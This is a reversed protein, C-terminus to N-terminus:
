ATPPLEDDKDMFKWCRIVQDDSSPVVQQCCETCSIPGEREKQVLYGHGALVCAVLNWVTVVVDKAWEPWWLGVGHNVGYNLHHKTRVLGTPWNKRAHRALKTELDRSAM